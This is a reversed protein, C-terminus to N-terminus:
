LLPLPGPLYHLSTFSLISACSWSGAKIDTISVSVWGVGLTRYMNSYLGVGPWVVLM